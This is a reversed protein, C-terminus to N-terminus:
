SKIINRLQNNNINMWHLKNLLQKGNSPAINLKKCLKYRKEKSAQNGILALEFLHNLTIDSKSKNLSFTVENALQYLLYDKSCQALGVKGQHIAQKKDLFIHHSTPVAQIISNRIKEGPSDPDTIVLIRKSKSIEQLEILFSESIASGNTELIHAEIFSLLFQKDTKGEVVIVADIIQKNM